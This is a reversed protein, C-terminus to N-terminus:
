YLHIQMTVGQFCKIKKKNMTKTKRNTKGAILECTILVQNQVEATNKLRKKNM